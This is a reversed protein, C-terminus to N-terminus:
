RPWPDDCPRDRLGALATALAPTLSPPSSATEFLSTGLAVADVGAQLWRHVDGAGLGGAAICFPLPALPGALSRWYHPGVASAPFLKVLEAGWGCAQAVETPSFVGPVLSIGSSAATRLLKQDLIPSVAFSLGAALAAELDAATCVSAAGLCVQPFRSRLERVMRVWPESPTVALEVHRLGAAQLLTLQHEAEDLSVVRLVALM